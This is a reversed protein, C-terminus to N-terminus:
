GSPFEATNAQQLCKSFESMAEANHGLTVTCTIQGAKRQQFPSALFGEATSAQYATVSSGSGNARPGVSTRSYGTDALGNRIALVSEERGAPSGFLNAALAVLGAVTLLGGLWLALGQWDPGTTGLGAAPRAARLAISPRAAGGILEENRGVPAEAKSKPKNRGRRAKMKVFVLRRSVTTAM